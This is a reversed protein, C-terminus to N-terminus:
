GIKTVSTAIKPAVQNSRNIKPSAHCLREIKPSGQYSRNLKPSGQYSRNLKPSGQFSSDIKPAGLHIRGIKPTGQNVAVVHSLSQLSHAPSQSQLTFINQPISNLANDTHSFKTVNGTLFLKAFLAFRKNTFSYILPNAILNFSLIYMNLTNVYHPINEVGAVPLAFLVVSPIYSIIYVWCILSVTKVAKYNRMRSASDSVTPRAYVIRLIILNAIVTILAPIILYMGSIVRLMELYTSVNGTNEWDFPSCNLHSPEYRITPKIGTLCTLTTINFIWLGTVLMKLRASSMPSKLPSALVQVRHISMLAILMAECCFPIYRFIGCYCLFEGLLWREAALTVIMPIFQLFTALMDAGAVNEILIVSNKEMRIANYRVSGLIVLANGALGLLIVLGNYALLFSKIATHNEGFVHDLTTHNLISEEDVRM